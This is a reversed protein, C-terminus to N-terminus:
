HRQLTGRPVGFEVSAKKKSMGNILVSNVARKMADEESLGRKMGDRVDVCVVVHGLQIVCNCLEYYPCLIGM